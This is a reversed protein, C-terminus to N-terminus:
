ELAQLLGLYCVNLGVFAGSVTPVSKSFRAHSVWPTIRLSSSTRTNRGSFLMADTTVRSHLVIDFDISAIGNLDSLHVTSTNVAQFVDLGDDNKSWEIDNVKWNYRSLAVGVNPTITLRSNRYAVYGVQVGVGLLTASSVANIQADRGEADLVGFINSRKFSPQGYSVDAKVRWFNYGGTLGGVFNVGGKFNDSLEGTPLQVGAGAYLGLTGRDVQATAVLGLMAALAALIIRKRTKM